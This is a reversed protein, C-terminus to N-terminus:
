GRTPRLDLLNPLERRHRTEYIVSTEIRTVGARSTFRDLALNKLHTTDRVAVHVILDHRGTILAAFRVEPIRAVDELFLDVTGREHKALEIFLLAELGVGLAQPDVEAHMSRVVGIDWLRKIREHCTSPALGVAAAMEKNSTRANNQLITLLGMDIRDLMDSV